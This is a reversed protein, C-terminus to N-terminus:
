FADTLHVWIGVFIPFSLLLREKDKIRCEHPNMSLPFIHTAATKHTTPHHSLFSYSYTEQMCIYQHFMQIMSLFPFHVMEKLNLLVSFVPRLAFLITIYFEEISEFARCREKLCCAFSRDIQGVYSQICWRNITWWFISSMLDATASCPHGRLIGQDTLCFTNHETM